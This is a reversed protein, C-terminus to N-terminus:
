ENEFRRMDPSELLDATEDTYLILGSILPAFTDFEAQKNPGITDLECQGSCDIEFFEIM